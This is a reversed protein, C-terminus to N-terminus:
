PMLGMDKIVRVMGGGVGGGVDLKGAKSPPLMVQPDLCPHPHFKHQIRIGMLGGGSGTLPDIYHCPFCSFFLAPM